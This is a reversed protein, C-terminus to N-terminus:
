PCDGRVPSHGIGKLYRVLYTVDGGTLLCDGNSDGALYPVPEPNWGKFYGVLYIVDSGRVLGDGNADGALFDVSIILALHKQASVGLSDVVRATFGLTDAQAPTGGLLGSSSLALGSGELENNLDSWARSGTGGGAIIQASYPTGIMANSLTNTIITLSPNITFSFPKDAYGSAQDQVHATFNITGANAPIGSVLGSSTLSLGTGALNNYLDSWTRNGTGGTAQLQQSFACTATWDPLFVTTITLPITLQPFTVFDVWACDSGRSLLQDKKYVWKLTHIGANVAYSALAWGAEGSWGKKLVNDILFKLSDYSAESSVKYYFSLSGTQGVNVTINLESTQNDAITGSKACYTGEYSGSNTVTWNANGGLQWPYASFNGTEFNEIDLGVTINFATTDSYGGGATLDLHFPIQHLLPCGPSVVFRYNATSVGTGGYAAITPYASTNQLITAFSDITSLVGNVNTASGTGNNVLTIAVSITDGAHISGVSHRLFSLDPVIPMAQLQVDVTTAHNSTVSIGNITQDYYGVATYKLNYTGPSLMRHYDGVDPDTFVRSSDADHSLVWVVAAVPLGSNADTVRGNIGYLANQIYDLLSRYNYEWHAPLQAAPLLKTNSLEITTERGGKFYTMYDQRGGNVLYWAYGNTIGNNLYTMYGSVSHNHVTDAYQRSLQVFWSNDPHLRAMSDWPYNVVEVGGHFNVSLAISHAAAFNMWAVTEPQWVNGDPHQGEVPDPYNRNLDIVNANGRIAGTVSNNGGHYTGDPNALPNIWIELSNLLNTAVPDSGYNSLLYDMLRLMLIYGTTEDGHMSSTLLVEPENEQSSVNASLKAVLLSRGQVTSGINVIQCLTPYNTAYNNMMTIYASYTPYSDWETLLGPSSAMKPSILSGPHRLVTISYGLKAFEGFEKFNAYAYVTDGKVNDISIVHTIKLLEDRSGIAFKFYYENVQAFSTSVFFFLWCGITLWFRRSM